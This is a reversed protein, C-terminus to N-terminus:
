FETNGSTLITYSRKFFTSMAKTDLASQKTPFHLTICVIEALTKIFIKKPALSCAAKMWPLLSILLRHTTAPPLSVCHGGTHVKFFAYHKHTHKCAHLPTPVNRAGAPLYDCHGGWMSLILKFCDGENISNGKIQNLLKFNTSCV